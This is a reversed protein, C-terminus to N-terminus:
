NEPGVLVVGCCPEMQLNCYMSHLGKFCVCGKIKVVDGDKPVCTFQHPFMETCFAERIYTDSFLINSNNPKSVPELLSWRRIFGQSDPVAPASSPQSFYASLAALIVLLRKM